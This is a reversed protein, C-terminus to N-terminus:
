HIRVVRARDVRLIYPNSGDSSTSKPPRVKDWFRVRVQAGWATKGDKRKESQETKLKIKGRRAKEARNKTTEGNEHM